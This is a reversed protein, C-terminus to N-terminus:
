TLNELSDFTKSHSLNEVEVEVDIEGNEIKPTLTAITQRKGDIFSVQVMEKKCKTWKQDYEAVPTAVKLNNKDDHFHVEGSKEHIRVEDTSTKSKSVKHETKGPSAGM